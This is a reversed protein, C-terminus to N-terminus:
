DFVDDDGKSDAQAAAPLFAGSFSLKFPAGENESHTITRAWRFLPGCTGGNQTPVGRRQLQKGFRHEYGDGYYHPHGCVGGHDFKGFSYTRKRRQRRIGSQASAM